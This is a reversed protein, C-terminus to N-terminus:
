VMTINFVAWLMVEGGPTVFTVGRQARRRLYASAMCVRAGTVASLTVGLRHRRDCPASGRRRVCGASPTSFHRKAPVWPPLSWVARFGLIAGGAAPEFGPVGRSFHITAPKSAAPPGPISLRPPHHGSREWSGKTPVHDFGM